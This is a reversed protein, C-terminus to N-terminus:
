ATAYQTAADAEEMLKAVGFDLLKTVTGANTRVLFLNEPKIDRHAVRLQHAFALGDIPDRLLRLAEIESMPPLRQTRRQELSGHLSIGELGELVLYPGQQGHDEIVSHDFVRVISRHESLRFLLKGEEAFREIFLRRAEGTFHGPVKLCKVAIPQDFGLHHGRYVVGFGGEGVVEEVRYKDAITTGVLGFSDQMQASRLTTQAM